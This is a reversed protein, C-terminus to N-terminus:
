KQEGPQAKQDSLIEELEYSTNRAKFKKPCSPSSATVTYALFNNQPEYDIVTNETLNALATSKGETSNYEFDKVKPYVNFDTFYTELMTQYNKLDSRLASCFAFEKYKVDLVETKANLTKELDEIQTDLVAWKSKKSANTSKVIVSPNMGALRLSQLTSRIFELVEPGDTSLYQILILYNVDYDVIFSFNNFYVDTKNENLKVNKLLLSSNSDIIGKNNDVKLEGTSYGAGSILGMKSAMVMTKAFNSLGMFDLLPLNSLSDTDFPIVWIGSRLKKIIPLSKRLLVEYDYVEKTKVLDMFEDPFQQFIGEADPFMKSAATMTQQVVTDDTFPNCGVCANGMFSYKGIEITEVKERWVGFIKSNLPLMPNMIDLGLAALPINTLSVTALADTEGSKWGEQKPIKLAIGYKDSLITYEQGLEAIQKRSILQSGTSFYLKEIPKEEGNQVGRVQQSVTTAEHLPIAIKDMTQTLIFYKPGSPAYGNASASVIAERNMDLSTASFVFDGEDTTKKKLTTSTEIKVDANAVGATRDEFQHVKGFLQYQQSSAPTEIKPKPAESPKNKAPTTSRQVLLKDSLIKTIQVKCSNTDKLAGIFDSQVLGKYQSNKTEVAGAFGLSAVKSVVGKLKADAKGTVAVSNTSGELTVEKCVDNVYERIIKMAKINNEFNDAFATNVGVSSFPAMASLAALLALMIAKIRM